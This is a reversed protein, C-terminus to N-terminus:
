SLVLGGVWVASALLGAGLEILMSVGMAKVAHVTSPWARATSGLRLLEALFVGLVFGIPLGVVPIVFFGVVGLVVGTVISVGPVGAEKLHRGPVAYKIVTGLALVVTAVALVLWGGGDGQGFAWLAIGLWVLLLGPLVPVVVGLLGLVVLVAAVFTATSSSDSLNM